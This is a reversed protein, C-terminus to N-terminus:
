IAPLGLWKAMAELILNISLAALVIGMVRRLVNAGHRGILRSVTGGSLFLGFLILMNLALMAVTEVQEIFTLRNNDMLIVIALMAGPGAIIPVALPYVAVSAADNAGAEATPAPGKDGLTMSLAFILLIIGGAIQFSILSINMAALAYQGIVAFVLLIVFAVPVAILAAKRREARDLGGTVSLFLSTHSIPDLVALLTMFQTVLLTQDILM